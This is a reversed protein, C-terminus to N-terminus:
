GKTGIISPKYHIFYGKQTLDYKHQASICHNYNGNHVDNSFNDNLYFIAQFRYSYPLVM